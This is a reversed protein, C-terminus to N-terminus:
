LDDTQGDHHINTERKRKPIHLVKQVFAADIDAVFRNSKPPVSKAWYEGSFDALFPDALLACIRVPLQVQVLHEHLNVALRVIKPPSHIM